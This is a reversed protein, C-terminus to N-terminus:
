PLPESTKKPIFYTKSQKEKGMVVNYCAAVYNSDTSRDTISNALETSPSFPSIRNYQSFLRSPSGKDSSKQNITSSRIIFNGSHQASDNSRRPSPYMDGSSPNTIINNSPTRVPPNFYSM